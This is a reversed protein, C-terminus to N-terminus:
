KRMLSIRACPPLSYTASSTPVALWAGESRALYEATKSVAGYKAILRQMVDEVPALSQAVNYMDWNGFTMIDHGRKAQGEAVGTILLKNGIVTLFDARVEVKNAKAWTDVQKQMVKNGDPVWHDGFAVSLKGAAGASRIHVLPLATAHAAVILIPQARCDPHCSAPTPRRSPTARGFPRGGRSAEQVPPAQSETVSHRVALNEVERFLGRHGARVDGILLGSQVHVEASGMSARDGGGIGRLFYSGDCPRRKDFHVACAQRPPFEQLLPPLLKSICNGCLLRRRCCARTHACPIAVSDHAM